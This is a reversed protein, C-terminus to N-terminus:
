YMNHLLPFKIRAVDCDTLPDGADSVGHGPLCHVGVAHSEGPEDQSLLLLICWTACTPCYYYFLSKTFLSINHGPSRVWSRDLIWDAHLATDVATLLAPMEFRNPAAPFM